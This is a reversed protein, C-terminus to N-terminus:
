IRTRFLDYSGKESRHVLAERGRDPLGTHLNPGAPLNTKGELGANLDAMFKLAKERASAALEKVTSCHWTGTVPHRYKVPETFRGALKKFSPLYFSTVFPRMDRSFWSMFVALGALLPNWFFRQSSQYSRLCARLEAAPYPRGCFLTRGILGLMEVRSIEARSLNESMLGRNPLSQEAMYYLDLISEVAHHERRDLGAFYYVLPHFVSDVAVHTLYGCLFSLAPAEPQYGLEALMFSVPQLTNYGQDGHLSVARGRFLERAPGSHYYFLIDPAVAGILYMYPNEAVLAAIHPQEAALDSRITEALCWHTYEKPM